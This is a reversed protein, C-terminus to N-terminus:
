LLALVVLVVVTAIEVTAGLVDGTIGGFRKRATGIIFLVAVIALTAAVAAQVGASDDIAGLMGAGAILVLVWGAAIWPRVTGAVVSGLGDPRAAPVGRRCALALAVRGAVLAITLATIGRGEAVCLALAGIQALVVLLLTIVGFPGIDSKRAIALAQEAPKGSGLADATDALGDLHIARTIWAIGGVALTAILLAALPRQPANSMSSLLLFPLGIIIALLLGVLPAFSMARGAVRQDITRPAPVPLRTLTGLALRLSDPM